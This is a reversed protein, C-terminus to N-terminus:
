RGGGSDSNSIATHPLFVATCTAHSLRKFIGFSALLAIISTCLQMERLEWAFTKTEKVDGFSVFGSVADQFRPSTAALTSVANLWESCDSRNGGMNVLVAHLLLLVSLWARHWAQPGYLNAIPDYIAADNFQGLANALAIVRKHPFYTTLED